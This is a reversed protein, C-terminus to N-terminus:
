GRQLAQECAELIVRQVQDLTGLLKVGAARSHGGGGWTAAIASVDVYENSRLSIKYEEKGMERIFIGVEVGDIERTYNVLDECDASQAGVHQIDALSIHMIAIRGEAKLELHSIGIGILKTAPYTRNRYINDSIKHLPFGTEMLKAMALFTQRTVNSYSFNGTDTSIATYICTAISPDIEVGLLSILDLIIEGTAACPRIYNLHGYEKNTIHHDINVVKEGKLAMDKLSLLRKDDACDVCISLYREGVVEQSDKSIEIMEQLYRYRFPLDGELYFKVEKGLRKLALYLAGGSGIADGDPSTHTFICIRDYARIQGAIENLIEKM